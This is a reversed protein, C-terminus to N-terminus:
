RIASPWRNRRAPRRRGRGARRGILLPCAPRGRRVPLHTPNPLGMPVAVVEAGRLWRVLLHLARCDPCGRAGFFDRRGGSRLGRSGSRAPSTPLPQGGPAQPALRVACPRTRSSRPLPRPIARLMPTRTSEPPDQLKDLRVARDSAPSLDRAAQVFDNETAGPFFAIQDYKSDTAIAGGITTAHPPLQLGHKNLSDHIPDGPETKALNFDGLPIIDHTFAFQSKRRNDPWRAVAYTELSRRYKQLDCQRVRLVSPREGAVALTGKHADIGMAVQV